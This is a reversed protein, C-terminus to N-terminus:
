HIMDDTSIFITEGILDRGIMDDDYAKFKFINEEHLDKLIFEQNWIAMKGAEEKVDTCFVEDRYKFEIFPDQKSFADKDDFKFTASEITLKIINYQM